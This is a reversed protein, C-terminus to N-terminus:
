IIWIDVCNKLLDIIEVFQHTSIVMDAYRKSPEVFELHMPRVSELYQRLVPRKFASRMLKRHHKHDTPDGAPAIRQRTRAAGHPLGRAGHHGIRM